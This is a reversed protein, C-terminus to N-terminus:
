DIESKYFKFYNKHTVYNSSHQDPTIQGLVVSIAYGLTNAKIWIDHKSDFHRLIMAKIFVPRLLLFIRKLKSRQLNIGLDLTWIM